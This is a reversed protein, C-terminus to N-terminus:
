DAFKELYKGVSNAGPNTMSFDSADLRLIDAVLQKQSPDIGGNVILEEGAMVADLGARILFMPHVRAWRKTQSETQLRLVAVAGDQLEIGAVTSM